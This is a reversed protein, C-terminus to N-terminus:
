RTRELELEATGPLIEPALEPLGRARESIGDPIGYCAVRADPGREPAGAIYDTEGIAGTGGRDALEDIGETDSPVGDADSRRTCVAHRDQRHRREYRAM